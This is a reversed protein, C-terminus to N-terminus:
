YIEMIGNESASYKSESVARASVAKGGTGALHPYMYCLVAVQLNAVPISGAMTFGNNYCNPIGRVGVALSLDGGRAVSFDVGASASVRTYSGARPYPDYSLSLVPRYDWQGGPMYYNSRPKFSIEKQPSAPECHLPINREDSGIVMKGPSEPNKDGYMERLRKNFEIAEDNQNITEYLYSGNSLEILNITVTGDMGAMSGSINRAVMPMGNKEIEENGIFFDQAMASISGLVLISGTLIKSPM